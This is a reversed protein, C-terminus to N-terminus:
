RSVVLKQTFVMGNADQMQLFYIGPTLSSVNCTHKQTDLQLTHSQGALDIAVVNLTQEPLQIINSAPNPYISFKPINIENEVSLFLSNNWKFFQNDMSAYGNEADYFKIFRYNISSPISQYITKFTDLSISFQNLESIYFFGQKTASPKVWGINNAFPMQTITTDWTSGGDKTQAFVITGMNKRSFYGFGNLTDLMLMRQYNHTLNNNRITKWTKGGNSVQYCHNIFPYSIYGINESNITTQFNWNFFPNMKFTDTPLINSSLDLKQWTNGGNETHYAIIESNLRDAFIFGHLSDFFHIILPEIASDPTNVFATDGNATLAHYPKWTKLTDESIWFQTRLQNFRMQSIAKNGLTTTWLNKGFSPRFNSDLIIRTFSQGYDNSCFLDNTANFFVNKESLLFSLQRPQLLINVQSRPISDWLSQSFSEGWFLLFTIIFYYKKM